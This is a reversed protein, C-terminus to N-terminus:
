WHADFLESSVKLSVNVCKRCDRCQAQAVSISRAVIAVDVPQGDFEDLQYLLMDDPRLSFLM